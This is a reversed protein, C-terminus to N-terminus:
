YQQLPDTQNWPWYGNWCILLLSGTPICCYIGHFTVNNLITPKYVVIPKNEM